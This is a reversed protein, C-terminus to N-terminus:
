VRALSKLLGTLVAGRSSLRPRRKKVDFAICSDDEVDERDARTWGELWLHHEQTTPPYPCRTRSLGREFAEVGQQVFRRYYKGTM